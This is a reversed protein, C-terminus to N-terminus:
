ASDTKENKLSEIEYVVEETLIGHTKNGIRLTTHSVGEFKEDIEELTLGKVEVFTLMMIVAQIINYGGNIFYFKWSIHDLAIPIVYQNFFGFAFTIIQSQAMGIARLSYNLVEVPYTVCLPTYSFSYVGSFFYALFVLANSGNTNTGDQFAKQLGGMLFMCAAMLFTSWVLIRVRGFPETLYSGAMACFFNTVQLVMNLIISTRTSIGPVALDLYTGIYTGVINSGTLQSAVGMWFIINFRKLNPITKFIDFWGAKHEKEYTLVEMIEQFEAKVLETEEGNGHYEILFNLAQQEKGISVLFRPSEPIAYIFPFSLIAPTLQWLSLARFSWQSTLTYTYLSVLNTFISAFYWIAMYIGSILGRYKSTCCESVYAPASCANITISIGLIIRGAVFMGRNQAATQIAVGIFALICSIAMGGRRGVFRLDILQAAFFGGVVSGINISASFLGETSSDLNYYDLYSEIMNLNSMMSQDFGMIMASTISVIYPFAM